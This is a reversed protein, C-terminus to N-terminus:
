QASGEELHELSRTRAMGQATYGVALGFPVVLMPALTWWPWGMGEILDSTEKVAIAFAGAGVILWGTAKNTFTIFQERHEPSMAHFIADRHERSRRRILLYAVPPLLWWWPSVRPRPHEEAIHRFAAEDDESFSQERLEVAAQYVPGAFLLWAGVFGFWLFLSM